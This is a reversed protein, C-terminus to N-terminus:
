FKKWENWYREDPTMNEEEKRKSVSVIITGVIIATGILSFLVEM